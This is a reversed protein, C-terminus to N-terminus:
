KGGYLLEDHNRVSWGDGNPRQPLQDVATFMATLAAQQREIAQPDDAAPEADVTVKVRSQNPLKLPEFLKLVGSDYIADIQYSM